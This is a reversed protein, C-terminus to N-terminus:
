LFPIGDQYANIEKENGRAMLAGEAQSSALPWPWQKIYAMIVEHKGCRILAVEAKKTLPFKTVYAMLEEQNRRKILAKEAKESLFNDAIYAAIEKHDGRKIM